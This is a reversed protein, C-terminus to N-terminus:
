APWRSPAGAEAPAGAPPRARPQVQGGASEVEVPDFGFVDVLRKPAVTCRGRAGAPLGLGARPATPQRLSRSARSSKTRRSDERELWETACDVADLYDSLAAALVTAPEGDLSVEVSFTRDDYKAAHSADIAM